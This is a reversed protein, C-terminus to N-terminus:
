DVKIRVFLRGKATRAIDEANPKGNEIRIGMPKAAQPVHRLYDWMRAEVAKEDLDPEAYATVPKRKLLLDVEAGGQLNKWWTRDRSTIVWLYEGERYYGVPTTYKKGTKRGTITILMMGNSLMGHFPSRLVWAM